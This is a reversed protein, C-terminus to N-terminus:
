RTRIHPPKLRTPPHELRTSAERDRASYVSALQLASDEPNRAPRAPAERNASSPEPLHRLPRYVRVVKDIIPQVSEVTAGPVSITSTIISTARPGLDAHMSPLDELHGLTVM